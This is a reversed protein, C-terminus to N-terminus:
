AADPLEAVFDPLHDEPRLDRDIFMRFWLELILLLWLRQGHDAHGQRHEAIMTAVADPRFYPRRRAASSLLIPELLEGMESRLWHSTPLSFGQKPRYIVERPLYRSALRKLLHKTEFGRLKLRAPIRRALEVLRVDLLPCRAELSHAMTAVDVKVLFDDPLVTLLDVHLARDVWDRSGVDNWLERFRGDISHRAALDLLEKTLIHEVHSRFTRTGTPDFVYTGNIGRAIEAVWRLRRVFRGGVSGPITLLRAVQGSSMGPVRHLAQAIAVALYSRYGAFSEDGGDGTLVVKVHRRAFQALFYTPLASHDGFPEGYHYTLAPLVSATSQELVHEHHITGLFRAVSRAHRLESFEEQPFGMSVTVVPTKSLAAMHAVVLSSDVGGSLFAGVPVDAVLRERVAERLLADIEELWDHESRSEHRFPPPSWYRIVRPTGGPRYELRCGAPLKWVGEFITGPAPIWTHLLFEVIATSSVPPTEDILELLAPLTSAFALGGGRTSYFVPKKGLHDRALHLEGRTADWIAFAFMGRIRRLLGDIGWQEYGHLLVESDTASRFTHRDVLQQRLDQFNYIEGNFVLWLTGDENTMPQRGADSLDIISLRRHGLAVERDYTEGYQDPGRHLMRGLAASLRERSSSVGVHGAIGCM